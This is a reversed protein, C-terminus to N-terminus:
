LDGGLHFIQMDSHGNEDKLLYNCPNTTIIHIDLVQLANIITPSTRYDLIVDSVVGKPLNPTTLFENNKNM